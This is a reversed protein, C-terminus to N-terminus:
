QELACKPHLDYQCAECHYGYTKGLGSCKECVYGLGAYLNTQLTLEHEHLNSTLPSPYNLPDISEDDNGIDPVPVNFQQIFAPAFIELKIISNGVVFQVDTIEEFCAMAKSFFPGFTGNKEKVTLEHVILESLKKTLVQVGAGNLVNNFEDLLEKPIVEAVIANGAMQEFSKFKLTLDCDNYMQAFSALEPPLGAMEQALEIANKQFM